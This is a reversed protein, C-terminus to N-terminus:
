LEPLPPEWGQLLAEINPPLNGLQADAETLVAQTALMDLLRRLSRM